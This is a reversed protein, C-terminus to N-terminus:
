SPKGYKEEVEAVVKKMRGIVDPNLSISDIGNAVLFQVVEPYDSPAKVV